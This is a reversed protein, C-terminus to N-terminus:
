GKRCQVKVVLVILVRVPSLDILCVDSIKSPVCQGKQLKDEYFLITRIIHAFVLSPSAHNDSQLLINIKKM